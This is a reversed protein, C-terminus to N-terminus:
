LNKIAQKYVQMQKLINSQTNLQTGLGVMADKSYLLSKKGAGMKM